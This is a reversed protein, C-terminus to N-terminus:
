KKSDHYLNTKTGCPHIRYDEWGPRASIINADTKNALKFIRRGDKKHDFRCGLIIEKVKLDNGFPIFYLGKEQTCDSLCVLLRYEKEYSWEQFKKGALNLFNQEDKKPDNTLEFKERIESSNYSVKILKSEPIEFGLAVGKHKNAYHAWLLQEKWIQSFCLIGWKKSITRFVKNFPQREKFGYRRYPMFEFPDNLTELTSVKIRNCALNDVAYESSLFHYYNQKGM